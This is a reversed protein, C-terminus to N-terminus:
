LVKWSSVYLTGHGVIFQLCWGGVFLWFLVFFRLPWITSSPVRRTLAAVFVMFVSAGLIYPIAQVFAPRRDVFLLTSGSISASPLYTGLFIDFADQRPGDAFNNRLYRTLSNNLDQVMGARTRNGTRTFDTKLAGTGSYSRSVVDANDAWVNRFVNEFTADDSATEGRQLIGLDTLQRTLIWRGLMSQVLNTRDLCDM